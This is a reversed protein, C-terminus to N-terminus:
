RDPGVLVRELPVELSQLSVEARRQEGGPLIYQLTIPRGAPSSTVLKTLENPSRVPQNGLAVIVSGPPVGAKSAPLDQVVGIVLAGAPESLGFRAQVSTDVPLTRVGLATRGMATPLTAASREPPVTALPASLPAPEALRPPPLYAPAVAAPPVYSPAAAAPPSYPEAAASVPPLSSNDAVGAPGFASAATAPGSQWESSTAPSPTPSPTPSRAPAVTRLPRDTARIVIEDIRDARGVAVKVDNGPAIAALEAALQDSTRLQKGNIALLQDQPKIGAQAAPGSQAVDVVVLRGPVLSDDATLGIWGSRAGSAGGTGPTATNASSGDRVAPGPAVGTPLQIPEGISIEAPAFAPPATEDAAEAYLDGREGGFVLPVCTFLVGVLPFRKM